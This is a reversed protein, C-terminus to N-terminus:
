VAPLRNAAEDACCCHGGLCSAKFSRLAAAVCWGPWQLGLNSCPNNCRTRPQLHSEVTKSTDASSSLYMAQLVVMWRAPQDACGLASVAAWSCNLFEQM